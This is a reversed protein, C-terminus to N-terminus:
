RSPRTPKRIKYDHRLVFGLKLKFRGLISELWKPDVIGFQGYEGYRFKLRRIPGNIRIRGAFYVTSTPALPILSIKLRTDKGGM